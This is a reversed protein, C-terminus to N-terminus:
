YEIDVEWKSLSGSVRYGKESDIGNPSLKPHWWVHIQLRSDRDGWALLWPVFCRDRMPRHSYLVGGWVFCVFLAIQDFCGEWFVVCMPQMSKFPRSGGSGWSFFMYSVVCVFCGLFCCVFCVGWSLLFCILLCPSVIWLFRMAFGDPASCCCRQWALSPCGAQHAEGASRTRTPGSSVRRARM